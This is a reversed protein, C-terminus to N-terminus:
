GGEPVQSKQQKRALDSHIKVGIGLGSLEIVLLLGYVLWAQTDRSDDLWLVLWDAVFAFIFIGAFLMLVAAALRLSLDFVPTWIFKGGVQKWRKVEPITALLLGVAEAVMAWVLGTELVRDGVFRWGPGLNGLNVSGDEIVIFGSAVVVMLLSIVIVHTAAGGTRRFAPCNVVTRSLLLGIWMMLLIEVALPLLLFSASLGYQVIARAMLWYVVALIALRTLLYTWDSRLVRLFERDVEADSYIEQGYEALRSRRAM